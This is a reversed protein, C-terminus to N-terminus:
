IKTTTHNYQNDITRGHKDYIKGVSQNGSLHNFLEHSRKLIVAIICGNIINKCKIDALIAQNQNLQEELRVGLEKNTCSKLAQSLDTKKSNLQHQFLLQNRNDSNNQIKSLCDMKQPQIFEFDDLNDKELASKEDDLCDSLKTLLEKEYKLLNDINQYFDNNM